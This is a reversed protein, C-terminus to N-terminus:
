TDSKHKNALTDSKEDYVGAIQSYFSINIKYKWLSSFSKSVNM